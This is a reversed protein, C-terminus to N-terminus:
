IIVFKNLNFNCESIIYLIFINKTGILKTSQFVSHFICFSIMLLYKWIYEGKSQTDIPALTHQFNSGQPTLHSDDTDLYAPLQIGTPDPTFQHWPISSTPDRQPWTHIPAFTHQFPDQANLHSNTGIYAPLQIKTSDPIYQHWHISSTPDRHLWTHFCLM